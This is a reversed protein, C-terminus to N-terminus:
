GEQLGQDRSVHAMVRQTALGAILWFLVYTGAFEYFYDFFGHVFWAILSAFLALQWIWGSQGGQARLQQWALRM